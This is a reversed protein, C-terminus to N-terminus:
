RVRLDVWTAHHDSADNLRALPDAAVPWFVGSGLVELPESPLVYDVRPNGPEPEGFDATDLRPDGRHGSNAAEAAGDSGSAPDIVRHASLVQQAAGPLSDRDFPDSNLDGVIVFREGGGSAATAAPMTTSRTTPVYYRWFAAPGTAALALLARLLPM